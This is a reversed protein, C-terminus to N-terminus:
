GGSEGEDNMNKKKKARDSAAQKKERKGKDEAKARERARSREVVCLERVANATTIMFTPGGEQDDKDKGRKRKILRKHHSKM